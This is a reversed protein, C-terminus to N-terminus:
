SRARRPNLSTDFAVPAHRDTRGPSTVTSNALDDAPHAQRSGYGFAELLRDSSSAILNWTMRGAAPVSHASTVAFSALSTAAEGAYGRTKELWPQPLSVNVWTGVPCVGNTSFSSQWTQELRIYAYLERRETPPFPVAYDLDVRDTTRPILRVVTGDAEASWHEANVKVKSGVALAQAQRESFIAVVFADRCDLAEALTDGAVVERGTAAIPKFLETGAPISLDAHTLREIRSGEALVLTQLESRRSRMTTMQTKIQLLDASRSRIEQQLNQLSQLDSGVYVGDRAFNLEENLKDVALQAAQLKTEELHITDSVEDANGAAVGRAILRLKRQADSKAIRTSYTVMQLAAEAAKLDASTRVLLAAQQKSLDDRLNLIRGSYDDVISNKQLLENDLAALQVKLGILTSNDVKDNDVSAKGTQDSIKVIGNIPTTIPVLPANILARATNSTFVPPLVSSSFVTALVGLVAYSALRVSGAGTNDKSRSHFFM